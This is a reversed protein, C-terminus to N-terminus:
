SAAARMRATRMPHAHKSDAVQRFHVLLIHWDIADSLQRTSQTLMYFGHWGVCAVYDRGRHAYHIGRQKSPPAATESTTVDDKDHDCQLLPEKRRKQDDQIRHSLPRTIIQSNM